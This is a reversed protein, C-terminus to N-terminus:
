SSIKYKKMKALLNTRGIKLIKAANTHNGDAESLASQIRSVELNKLEDPLAPKTKEHYEKLDEMVQYLADQEAKRDIM